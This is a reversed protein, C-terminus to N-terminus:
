EAEGVSPTTERNTTNDSPSEEDKKLYNFGTITLAGSNHQEITQQAKGYVQEVLFKLLVADGGLAKELTKDLLQKKQEDTIDDVIKPKHGTGKPRGAGPRWGGNKGPIIQKKQNNNQKM